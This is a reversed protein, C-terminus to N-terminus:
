PLIWASERHRLDTRNPFEVIARGLNKAGVQRPFAMAPGEPEAYNKLDLRIPDHV